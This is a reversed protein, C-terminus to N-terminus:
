AAAPLRLRIILGARFWSELEAHCLSKRVRMARGTLARHEEFITLTAIKLSARFCTATGDVKITQGIAADSVVGISLIACVVTVIAADKIACMMTM